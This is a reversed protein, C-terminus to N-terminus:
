ISLELNEYFKLAKHNVIFKRIDLGKISLGELSTVRSLGVYGQSVEFLKDLNIIVYDLTSGQSKHITTAYSLKLPIQIISGISQNADNQIDWPHYDIIEELGNLFKVIPLGEESFRKVIGRSGNVLQKEQDLNCILVVQAGVLLELKKIGNCMQLYEEPIDSTPLISDVPRPDVAPRGVFYSTILTQELKNQVAQWKMNFIQKSDNTRSQLLNLEKNNITNVDVNTSYLQTPIIGIDNELPVNLRSRLAKKVKNTIKGIRISNLVEQFETNKQRHIITLYVIKQITEKWVPSEFAYKDSDVTPLQLWDGSVILQIGGFPKSNNRITRGILDLKDFLEPSILSIEDILLLNTKLWRSKVAKDSEIKRILSNVDKKGLGIGAWSHLTRGNLLVAAIGTSATVAIFRRSKYREIIHKLLFTKGCGAGRSTIFINKGNDIYEYAKEQEETLKM